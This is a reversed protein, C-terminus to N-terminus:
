EWRWKRRSNVVWWDTGVKAAFDLAYHEIPPLEWHPGGTAAGAPIPRDDVYYILETGAPDVGRPRADVTISRDGVRSSGLLTRFTGDDRAAALIGVVHREFHAPAPYAPAELIVLELRLEHIGLDPFRRRAEALLATLRVKLPDPDRVTYMTRYTYDLWRQINDDIAHDSIVEFHGAPLSYPMHEGYPERVRITAFMPFGSFPYTNLKQDVAPVLATFADYVVFAIIFIKTARPPQWTAPSEPPRTRFLRDWDVFVAALPLWHLNWLQMVVGLALTEVIFFAGCAARLSPRAVLFVAGIPALQSVLNLMAATRYRWADDILWDAIAPRPLGALDYRVLLHHRLNDSLAWRLTLQGHLFKHFMACAFMLAVALQVLRVSWQYGRPVDRPLLGRVTRLWADVSLTDGGRAGLFALQALFVVNYQHSWTPSGAYSLSALAVGAAFSVATAARSAAGVFMAFTAVRAVAFLVEVVAGPPRWHGFLMWVGVPRYVPPTSWTARLRDLTLWVAIAIAIRLIAASRRGGEAFWYRQWRSV